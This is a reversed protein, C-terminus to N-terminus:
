LVITREFQQLDRKRRLGDVIWILNEYFDNRSNREDVKLFSHQFELIWGFDTKVDSIHKEGDDARHVIEQWSDPFQNKWHRHWETENEWWHDCKRKGQHAWHHVNIDGCKSVMPSGCGPCEGILKPRATVREGNVIAFKM